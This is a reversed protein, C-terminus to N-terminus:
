RKPRASTVPPSPTKTVSGKAQKLQATHKSDSRVNRASGEPKGGIWAPRGDKTGLKANDVGFRRVTSESGLRGVHGRRRGEHDFIPIRSDPLEGPKPQKTVVSPAIDRTHTRYRNGMVNM